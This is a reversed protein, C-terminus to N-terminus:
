RPINVAYAPQLGQLVLRVNAAAKRKLESLAEVSYYAAHDTLVVNNFSRLGSELPLPEQEYVDLGAAALRNGLLAGVLAEEDIVAGRSTNIVIASPKMKRLRSENLLHKTEDNLPVHLSIYDSTSLLTELDTPQMGATEIEEKQLHPDHVLIRDFGWSQARRAFARGIRGFGIVGLSRGVSRHVPYNRILNWGGERVQRDKYSIGRICSLLLAFAHDAVEETGYDPVSTVYIGAATAAEIDVNDLGVGYRSIVRCRPMRQISAATLELQNVLVADAEAIVPIADAEGKLHHISLRGGVPTLEAEEEVYSGFLDDTVVINFEGM